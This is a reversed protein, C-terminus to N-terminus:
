PQPSHDVQRCLQTKCDWTRGKEVGCVALWRCACVCVGVKPLLQVKSSGAFVRVVVLLNLYFPTGVNLPPIALGPRGAKSDVSMMGQKHLTHGCSCLLSHVSVKPM